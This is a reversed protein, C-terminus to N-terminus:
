RIELSLAPLARGAAADIRALTYRNNHLFPHDSSQWLTSDAHETLVLLHRGLPILNRGTGTDGAKCNAAFSFTHSAPCADSGVLGDGNGDLCVEAVATSHRLWHGGDSDNRFVLLSLSLKRSSLDAVSSVSVSWGELAVRWDDGSIALTQDAAYDNGGATNDAGLSSINLAPENTAVVWGFNSADDNLGVNGWGDRFRGNIALGGLYDGRHGKVLVADASADFPDATEGGNNTCDNAPVPDFVPTRAAPSALGDPKVLAAISGPLIGNDAVFGAATSVTSPSSQGLIASRLQQMRTRTDDYRIQARDESFSGFALLSAASLIAVVVLLEILTFGAVAPRPCPM